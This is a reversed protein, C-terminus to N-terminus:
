KKKYDQNSRVGPGCTGAMGGNAMGAMPVNKVQPVTAGPKAPRIASSSRKSRGMMMKDLAAM